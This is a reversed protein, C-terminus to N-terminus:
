RQVREPHRGPRPRCCDAPRPRRFLHGRLLRGARDAATGSCAAPSATAGAEFGGPIHVFQSVGLRGLLAAFPVYEGFPVLHVKDYSDGVAGDKAVVEIANFYRAPDTSSGAKGEMRAAGTVLVGDAPLAAAIADLADPDRSLIFPFPSEPWILHTVDALGGREDSTARDSLALYKRLLADKNAYSFDANEVVNPQMIRLKVGPVM